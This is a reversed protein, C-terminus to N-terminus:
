QQEQSAPLRLAEDLGTHQPWFLMLIWGHQLRQASLCLHVSCTSLTGCPPPTKDSGLDSFGPITADLGDSCRPWPRQRSPRARSQICLRTLSHISLCSSRAQLHYLAVPRTSCPCTVNYHYAAVSSHLCARCPCAGVVVTYTHLELCRWGRPAGSRCPVQRLHKPPQHGL